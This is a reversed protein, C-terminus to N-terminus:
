VLAVYSVFCSGRKLAVVKEEKVMGRGRGRVRERKEEEM